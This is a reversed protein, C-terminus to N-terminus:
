NKPCKSKPHGLLHCKGCKIRPKFCKAAVHGRQSCNCCKPLFNDNSTPRKRINQRLDPANQRKGHFNDHSGSTSPLNLQLTSLYEQYLVEPAQHRGARAGNQIVQDNIGKILCSVARKGTVDCSRLMEMKEFYYTTWSENPM